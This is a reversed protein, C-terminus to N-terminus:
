EKNRGYVRAIRDSLEKEKKYAEQRHIQETDYDNTFNDLLKQQLKAIHILNEVDEELKKTRVDLCGAYLSTALVAVALLLVEM